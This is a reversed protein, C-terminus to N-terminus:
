RGKNRMMARRGAQNDRTERREKSRALRANQRLGNRQAETKMRIFRAVEHPDLTGDNIAAIVACGPENTHSCDAFRCELQSIGPFVADVADFDAVASVARVGPNDIIVFHEAALIQRSTTTHRGKADGERVAGVTSTAGTLSNILTTKGAGSRGLVCLTSGHPIQDAFVKISEHDLASITHVHLFKTELVARIQAVVDAPVLDTKSCVIWPDVGASEALAALREVRGVSFTPVFPEIILAIDVNAAILQDRSDRGASPRTLLTRRPVLAYILSDDDLMMWDGVAPPFDDGYIEEFPKDVKLRHEARPTGDDNVAIVDIHGKHVAIVRALSLSLGHLASEVALYSQWSPSWGLNRVVDSM